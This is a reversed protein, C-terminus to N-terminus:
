RSLKYAWYLSEICSEFSAKGKGAIDFATGHDPSTRICPLGLSLNVAKQGLLTKVPILAQDHYCALVTRFAKGKGVKQFATDASVPGAIAYGRDQWTKIVASMMLEEHGLKGGEGAHPNLGLTLLPKKDKMLRQLCLAHQLKRHYMKKSFAYAVDRLALHTTALLVSFESSVFTMSVEGSLFPFPENAKAKAKTKAFLFTEPRLEKQLYSTHDQFGRRAKAAWYKSLPATVLAHYSAQRLGWIALDLSRMALTGSARSGYGLRVDEMCINETNVKSLKKIDWAARGEATQETFLLTQKQLQVFKYESPLVDRGAASHSMKKSAEKAWQISIKLGLQKAHVHFSQEYGILWFEVKKVHWLKALATGHETKACALAM